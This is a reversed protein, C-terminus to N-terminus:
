SKHFFIVFCTEVKCFFRWATRMYLYAAEVYEATGYVFAAREEEAFDAFIM